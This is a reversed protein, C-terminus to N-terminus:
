EEECMLVIPPTQCARSQNGIREYGRISQRDQSKISIYFQNPKEGPYFSITCGKHLVSDLIADIACGQNLM